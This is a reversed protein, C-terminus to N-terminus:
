EANSLEKLTKPKDDEALKQLGKGNDAHEECLPPSSGPVADNSCMTCPIRENSKKIMAM